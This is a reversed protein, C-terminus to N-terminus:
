VNSLVVAGGALILALNISSIWHYFLRGTKGSEARTIQRYDRAYRPGYLRLLLLSPQLGRRRLNEYILITATVHWAAAVLMLGILVNNTDM